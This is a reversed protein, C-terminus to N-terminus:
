KIVIPFAFDPFIDVPVDHVKALAQAVDPPMKDYKAFWAEARARDGTAEIELLERALAAVVSKMKSEDFAWLDGTHTFAKQEVLYNFEMMEARGHAEAVGYRITRFNGALYSAYFGPLQEAPLAGNEVLWQLGFMGVVDAKAEELASYVPGIAERIDKQKGAVRAYAPGLGHCIEHLITHALYGEGSAQAAQEAPMMQKALPLIVYNVRADMFNKFFIKKTGKKEHIRPDNPLNDAVAQYGHLLDGVRYPADAVEMPSPQGEKSPLDARDLPLAQQIQPVFKQYLALRRSEQENRILVAAGYSGKVGLVGDLYTEYPAFIIDIKPDKLDVWLLDSAFYDDSLLADARAELFASFAPDPDLRAAERLLKAAAELWHKYEVHYPIAELKDAKWRLVTNGNYIADKQEPHKQIYAEIQASTLGAPYIARGPPYPADGAFPKDEDLLDYRSGNILLLKKLAADSTTQYLQLGEPDSQRWYISELQQCALVLKDVVQRERESLGSADFHMQVPKWRALQRDIDADNVAATLM